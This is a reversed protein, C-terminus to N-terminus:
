KILLSKLMKLTDTDTINKLNQSPNHLLKNTLQDALLTLVEAPEAGNNLKKLVKQLTEDKIKYAQTRYEKILEDNSTTALITQFALSEKIIIKKAVEKADERNQTNQEIIQSLDDITYLYANKLQSIEPEVDRPVAIDLIFMPKYKRKKLAFEILGKGLIPVPSATSSIIIDAQDITQHLDNLTIVESNQYNKAILQAKKLTRNAIIIKKIKQENLHKACLEIMEGAGILLVTQQSLDAFIKEALKISCYAVSVPSSGIQTQTRIKKAIKFTQQFLKELITDLTNAEKAFHYADKLQGLIQPEGLVLSNLGSAVSIIHEIANLDLYFDLYQDVEEKINHATKLWTILSKKLDDKNNTKTTDSFVYIESRNCTSLIVCSQINPHNKLSNLYTTLENAQFAFLERIEIPALNHNVSLVAITM